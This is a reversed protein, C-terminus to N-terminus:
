FTIVKGCKSIKIPLNGALAFSISGTELYKKSQYHMEWYEDTETIFDREIIFMDDGSSHGDKLNNNIYEQAIIIAKEVSISM